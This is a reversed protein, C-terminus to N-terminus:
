PDLKQELASKASRTILVTAAVTALLGVGLLAWQAPTRTDPANALSGLYVYVITGPIMAIWSALVFPLLPVKTLGYAYNLLNFPFAPSLRTLAVIRWGEKGVAEDIAAFKPNGSTQKEVWARAFYRGVLFAATAGLTSAISVWVTGWFLGFYAGAGLTLISAPALLVTAVIYALIFIVVAWPGLGDLAALLRDLLERLGLARGLVFVAVVALGIIALKHWPRKKQLPAADGPTAMSRTRFTGPM